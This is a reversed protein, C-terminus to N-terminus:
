SETIKLEEIQDTLQDVLGHIEDEYSLWDAAVDLLRARLDPAPTSVDIVKDRLGLVYHATEDDGAMNRLNNAYEAMADVICEVENEDLALEKGSPATLLLTM